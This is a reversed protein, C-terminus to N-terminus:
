EPFRPQDRGGARAPPHGGVHPDRDFAHPDTNMSIGKDIARKTATKPNM